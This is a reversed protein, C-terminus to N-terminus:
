GGNISEAGLPSSTLRNALQACWDWVCTGHDIALAVFYNSIYSVLIGFVINLQNLAVLRGRVPGPAIEVIYLPVVVSAGGIALGGIGRMIVLTLWDPAFACGAASILFLFGLAVLTLKRGFRDSPRGVGFAGIVTGILAISVTFGHRFASLGYEKQIAKECGSIVGSDFGFLFGGLASVLVVYLLWVKSRSSAM